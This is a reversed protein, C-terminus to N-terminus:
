AQGVIRGHDDYETEPTAALATRTDDESLRAALDTVGVPEGAALLRLLPVLLAADLGSENPSILRDTLDQSLSTM